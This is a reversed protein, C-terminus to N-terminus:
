QSTWHMFLYPESGSEVTKGSNMHQLFADLEM